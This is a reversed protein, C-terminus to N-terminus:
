VGQLKCSSRAPGTEGGEHEEGEVGTWVGKGSERRGEEEEKGKQEGMVM